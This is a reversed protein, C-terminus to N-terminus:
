GLNLVKLVNNLTEQTMKGGHDQNLITLNKNIYGKHTNAIIMSPKKDKKKMSLSIADFIEKISHGNIELVFWGFSEWKEKLNGLPMIESLPGDSQGKNYDCFAILNDIERNGAFLAAEWIQGEQSEGDGIICYSYSNDNNNKKGIARGIAM